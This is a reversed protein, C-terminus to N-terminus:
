PFRSASSFAHSASLCAASPSRSLFSFSPASLARLSPLLPATVGVGVLVAGAGNGPDGVEVDVAVAVGLGAGM